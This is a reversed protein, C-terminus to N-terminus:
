PFSSKCVKNKKCYKRSQWEAPEGKERVTHPALLLKTGKIKSFYDSSHHYRHSCLFLAIPGLIHTHDNSPIQHPIRHTYTSYPKPNPNCTVCGPFCPLSLLQPSLRLNCTESCPSLLRLCLYFLIYYGTYPQANCQKPSFSQNFYVFALCIATELTHFSFDICHFPVLDLTLNRAQANWKLYPKNLGNLKM